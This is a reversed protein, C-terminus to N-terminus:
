YMTINFSEIYAYREWYVSIWNSTRFTTIQSDTLTWTLTAHDTMEIEWTKNTLDVTMTNTYTWNTWYATSESFMSVWVFGAQNWWTHAIWDWYFFTTETWTTTINLSRQHNWTATWTYSMVLKVASSAATSLDASSLTMFNRNRSSNYYWNSNVTSWAPVTWWKSQLDAVSWTTFDYSYTFIPMERWMYIPM